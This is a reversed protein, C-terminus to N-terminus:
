GVLTCLDVERLNAADAHVVCHFLRRALVKHAGLRDLLRTGHRIRDADGVLLLVADAADQVLRELRLDFLGQNLRREDRTM